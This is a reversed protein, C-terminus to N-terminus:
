FRFSLGISGTFMSGRRNDSTRLTWDLSRHYFFLYQYSFDLNISVNNSLHYQPNLGVVMHVLRDGDPFYNHQYNPLFEDIFEQNNISNFGGGITSRLTFGEHTRLISGTSSFGALEGIDLIGMISGRIHRAHSTFVDDEGLITEVKFRDLSANGKIGFYPNFMYVLGFGFHNGGTEVRSNTKIPSFELTKGVNVDVSFKSFEYQSLLTFNLVLFLGFFLLKNMNLANHNM